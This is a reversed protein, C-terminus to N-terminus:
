ARVERQTRRQEIPSAGAVAVLDLLAQVARETAGAESEFVERGRAGIGRSEASGALMEALADRLESAQVIRIASQRLLTEVIGRFNEYSPGMVVPVGFQAAELPNHGGAPVLSGGIFAAQALSYIAALEGISDLLFVTGPEIKAPSSGWESRRVWAAGRRRLIEAVEGFREPHRPALVMVVESPVADLLLEEEGALTSGCVLVRVGPVIAERLMSTLVSSEAARVDYKLNGAVRVHAAGL